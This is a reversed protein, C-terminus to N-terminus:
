CRCAQSRRRSRNRIPRRPRDMRSRCGIPDITRQRLLPRDWSSPRQLDRIKVLHSAWHEPRDIHGYMITATTRFGVEHAAEMVQLWEGTNLKDPCLHQRVDDHLIEAATGPLTNLGAAQLQQLYEKVGLGLTAAGQWVELPSFAHIHMGPTAQRVTSLIDLTQKPDPASM